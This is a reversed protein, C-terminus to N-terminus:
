DANTIDANTIDANPVSMNTIDANTIDANTIDANTIDANTIDANTIDANTFDANTIDANYLEGNTLDANQPNSPDPNLTLSAKRGGPKLAGNPGTIEAVDVTVSARSNSSTVFIPRSVSSRRAITVDLTTLPPLPPAPPLPDQLFSAKAGVPQSRITLRYSATQPTSNQV